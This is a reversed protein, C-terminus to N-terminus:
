EAVNDLYFAAFILHLMTGPSRCPVFNSQHQLLLRREGLRSYETTYRSRFAARKSRTSQMGPPPRSSKRSRPPPNHTPKESPLSAEISLIDVLSSRCRSM